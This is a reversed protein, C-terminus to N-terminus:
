RDLSSSLFAMLLSRYVNQRCCLVIIVELTILNRLLLLLLEMEM